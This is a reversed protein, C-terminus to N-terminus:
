VVSKRDTASVTITATGENPNDQISPANIRGNFIQIPSGAKEYLEHISLNTDVNTYSDDKITRFFQKYITINRATYNYNLLSSTFVRDIGSLQIKCNQIEFTSNESLGTVTLLNGQALYTNNDYTVSKFYDTLYYINTTGSYGLEFKVLHAVVISPLNKENSTVTDLTRM